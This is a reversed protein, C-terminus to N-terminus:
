VGGSTYCSNRLACRPPPRPVCLTGVITTSFVGIAEPDRTVGDGYDHQLSSNARSMASSSDMRPPPSMASGADSATSLAAIGGGGFGGGGALEAAVDGVDAMTRRQQGSIIISDKSSSWGLTM